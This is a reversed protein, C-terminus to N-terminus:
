PNRTAGGLAGSAGRSSVPAVTRPALNKIPMGALYPQGTTNTARVIVQSGVAELIEVEEGKALFNLPLVFTFKTSKAYIGVVELNNNEYLIGRVSIDAGNFHALSKKLNGIVPYSTTGVKFNGADPKGSLVVMNPSIIRSVEFERSPKPQGEVKVQRGIFLSLTGTQPGTLTVTGSRNTLALKGQMLNLQGEITVAAVAPTARSM